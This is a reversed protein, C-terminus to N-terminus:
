KFPVDSSKFHVDRQPFAITIKRERFVKDIMYHLDSKLTFRNEPEDTWIHLKFNLSSDGFNEFWVYPEPNLLVRGHSKAAEMLSDKVLETDSGYVVGVSIKVRTIKDSYSWNIVKQNMFDANPVIVSINDFTDVVTSRAKIARVKGPLNNVEIYDGVKVPREVLMVIGSVFNKAIDQLGFGIGIGVTGAFVTLAALEVGLATLGVFMGIILMFYKIAVSFTYQVSEDLYMKKYVNNRLFGDLLNSGVIFMWLIVAVKFLLWVSLSVNGLVFFPKRATEILFDIVEHRVGLIEVVLFIGLFFLAWRLLTSAMDLFTKLMIREKTGEKKVSLIKKFLMTILRQAGALILITSGLIAVLHFLYVCLQHYGILSLTFYAGVFVACGLLIKKLPKMLFGVYPIIEKEQIEGSNIKRKRIIVFLLYAFLVILLVADTPHFSYARLVLLESKLVELRKEALVSIYNKETEIQVDIFAIREDILARETAAAELRVANAKISDRIVERDQEKLELLIKQGEIEKEIAKIELDILPINAKLDAKEKKDESLAKYMKRSERRIENITLDDSNIIYIKAEILAVAKETAQIREEIAMKKAEIFQSQKELLKIEKKVDSDLASSGSGNSILTAKKSEIEEQDKDLQESAKEINIQENKAAVLTRAGANAKEEQTDDISTTIIIKPEEQSLVMPVFFSSVLILTLFIKRM